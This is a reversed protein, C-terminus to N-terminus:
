STEGMFPMSFPGASSSIRRQHEAHRRAEEMSLLQPENAGIRRRPRSLLPRESTQPFLISITRTIAAM